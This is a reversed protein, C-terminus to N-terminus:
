FPRFGTAGQFMANAADTYTMNEMWEYWGDEEVQGVLDTATKVHDQIDESALWANVENTHNQKNHGICKCISCKNTLNFAKRANALNIKGARQVYECRLAISLAMAKINVTQSLVFDICWSVVDGILGLDLGGLFNMVAVRILAKAAAIGKSLADMSTKYLAIAASVDPKPMQVIIRVGVGSSSTLCSDAAHCLM